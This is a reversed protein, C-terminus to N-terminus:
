KEKLWGELSNLRREHEDIQQERKGLRFALHLLAVLQAIGFAVVTLLVALTQLNM